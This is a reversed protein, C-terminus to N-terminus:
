VWRRLRDLLGTKGLRIDFLKEQFNQIKAPIEIPLVQRDM